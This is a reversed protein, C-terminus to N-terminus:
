SGPEKKAQVRSELLKARAQNLLEQTYRPNHVGWSGDLRVLDILHQAQRVREREKEDTPPTKPVLEVVADYLTHTNKQWLPIMQEGLGPKHCANCAAAVAVAVTAGSDGKIKLPRPAIHCGSCDVHALFMPTVAQQGAQQGTAPQHAATLLGDSKYTKQQIAHQGTHCSRCDIQDLRMSQASPGHRTVGHCSFCEVKKGISHVKHTEEVSGLREMGFDHCAFCQDDKIKAVTATVGRHCSECAAGYALYEAHIVKLGQYEIPHDPASHCADCRAAPTKVGAATALLPTSHAGETPTPTATAPTTAATTVPNPISSDSSTLVVNAKPAKPYALHCTICANTNIEFHNQGQIHSHCTTCHMEVSTYNHDLHKGHDFFYKGDHRAQKRIADVNHCGGRLCSADAVDASPKGTRSLVDDVVQGLGNLKARAYNVTGPPIHCKVCEVQSHTGAQWSQYYSGMIHCSNCFSSRSTVEVSVFTFVVFGVLLRAAWDWRNRPWLIRIVKKLSSRIKTV